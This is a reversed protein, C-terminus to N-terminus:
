RKDHHGGDKHGAEVAIETNREKSQDPVDGWPVTNKSVTSASRAKAVAPRRAAARSRKWGLSPTLSKNEVQWSLAEGAAETQCDDMIDPHRSM